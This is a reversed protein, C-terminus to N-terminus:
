GRLATGCSVCNRDTWINGMGCKPCVKLGETSTAYPSEPPVTSAANRQRGVMIILVAVVAVVVAALLILLYTQDM